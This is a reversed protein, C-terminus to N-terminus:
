RIIYETLYKSFFLIVLCRWHTTYVAYTNLLTNPIIGKPFIDERKCIIIHIDHTRLIRHFIFVNLNKFLLNSSTSQILIHIIIPINRYYQVLLLIVCNFLLNGKSLEFHNSMIFTDNGM